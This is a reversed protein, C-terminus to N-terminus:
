RLGGGGTDGLRILVANVFLVLAVLVAGIILAVEYDGM